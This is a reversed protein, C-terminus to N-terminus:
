LKFVYIVAYYPPRNEHAESGGKNGVTVGTNASNTTVGTNSNQISATISAETVTVAPTANATNGIVDHVHAGNSSTSSGSTGTDRVTLGTGADSIVAFGTAHEHDGNSSTDLDVAHNHATQSAAHTHPSQTIGHSHGPDTVGHTHGTDTVTHNHTPMQAESLTVTNAGGTVGLAYDSDTGGGVVFRNLLNPAIVEKGDCGIYTEGNALAWGSWRGSGVGTTASFLSVDEAKWLAILPSGGCSLFNTNYEIASLKKQMSALSNKLKSLEKGCDDCGDCKGM